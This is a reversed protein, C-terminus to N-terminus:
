AGEACPAAPEELLEHGFGADSSVDRLPVVVDVSTNLLAQRIDKPFRITIRAM